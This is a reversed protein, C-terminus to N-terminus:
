KDSRNYHDYFEEWSSLRVIYYSDGNEVMSWFVTFFDDAEDEPVNFMDFYVAGMDNLLDILGNDMESVGLSDYITESSDWADQVVRAHKVFMAKNMM